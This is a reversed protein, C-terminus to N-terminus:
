KSKDLSNISILQIIEQIARTYGVKDAQLYPWASNLYDAVHSKTAAEEKQKLLLALRQLVRQASRVENAFNTKDQGQLHATWRSDM